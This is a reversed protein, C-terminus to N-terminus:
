EEEDEDLEEVKDEGEDPDYFNTTSRQFKVGSEELKKELRTVESQLELIKENAKETAKTKTNKVAFNKINKVRKAYTLSTNSEDANYDAPSVNVFMLTKANGGLSDKMLMTLKNDRYPIHKKKGEGLASIVNGLASLSKNIALAEKLRDKTAGTKSVRESGALDVLSLKGVTKQNTQKNRNNIIISFVLHSRSSTANMNTSATKRNELGYEFLMNAEQLSNIDVLKAGEVFVMGHADEKIELPKREEKKGCLLDTLNELYLEVMYCSLSIDYNDMSDLIGFLEDFIRPTLGPNQADGQITYTKGSGTQGYAFVCVNYGDIASQILACSEEFVEEQTSNPGFCNDFNYKKPGNRTDVQISMEDPIQVCMGNGDAIEKKSLPRARAFVRVKGKIDEIQNHLKKRKKVEEKYKVEVVQLDETTSKLQKKIEKHEAMLNEADGVQQSMAEIKKRLEEIEKDRAKIGQESENLMTNLQNSQEKLIRIKEEYEATTDALEKKLKDNETSLKGTSVEFKKKLEDAKAQAESTQKEKLKETKQLKKDRDKGVAAVEGKIAKLEKEQGKNISHLNRIEDKRADATITLTEIRDELKELKAKLKTIEKEKTKLARAESSVSGQKKPSKKSPSKEKSVDLERDQLAEIKQHLKDIEKDKKDIKVELRKTPQTKKELEKNHEKLQQNEIGLQELQDKLVQDVKEGGKGAKQNALETYNDRLDSLDNDLKDAREEQHRLADKLHLNEEELVAIKDELDKVEDTMHECKECIGDENGLTMTVPAKGKVLEQPSSEVRTVDPSLKSSAPERSKLESNEKRLTKIQSVLSKNEEELDELAEGQDDGSRKKLEEISKQLLSNEKSLRNIEKVLDENKSNNVMMIRKADEVHDTRNEEPVLKNIMEKLEQNDAFVENDEEEDEAEEVEAPRKRGKKGKKSKQKKLAIKNREEVVESPIIEAGQREADEIQKLHVQENKKAEKLLENLSKIAKALEVKDENLQANETELKDIRALLEKSEITASRGLSASKPGATSM